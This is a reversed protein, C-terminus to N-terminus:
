LYKIPPLGERRRVAEMLGVTGTMMNDGWPAGFTIPLSSELALQRRPGTALILEVGDFGFAKRRYAGHGGQDLVRRHSLTGNAQMLYINADGDRDTSGHRRSM